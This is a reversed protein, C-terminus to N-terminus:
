GTSSYGTNQFGQHRSAMLEVINFLNHDFHGSTTTKHRTPMKLHIKNSNVYYTLLYIFTSKYV